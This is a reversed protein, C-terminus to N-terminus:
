VQNFSFRSGGTKKKEEIKRCDRCLDMRVPKVGEHHYKYEFSYLPFVMFASDLCKLGLLILRMKVKLFRLLM